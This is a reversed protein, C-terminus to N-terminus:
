NDPPPPDTPRRLTPPKKKQAADKQDTAKQQAQEQPTLAANREAKDKKEKAAVEAARQKLDEKSLDASDETTEIAQQLVFDYRAVDKPKADDIKRLQELMEKEGSAVASTGQDMTFKRKLGDDAVTDIAEIIKAYDELLDHILASRGPKDKSLLQNVQDVRQKAFHLYLKMRANPEQIERVQDAEDATLFDREAQAQLLGAGTLMACFTLLALGPFRM